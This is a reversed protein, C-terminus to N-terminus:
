VWGREEGARWTSRRRENICQLGGAQLTLICYLVRASHLKSLCFFIKSCWWICKNQLCNCGSFIVAFCWASIGKDFVFQWPTNCDRYAQSHTPNHLKKNNHQTPPASPSKAPPLILSRSETSAALPPATHRRSINLRVLTGLIVTDLTIFPSAFAVSVLNMTWHNPWGPKKGGRTCM